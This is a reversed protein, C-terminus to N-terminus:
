RRSPACAAESPASGRASSRSAAIVLRPSCRADFAGADYDGYTSRVVFGAGEVAAILAGPMWLRVDERYRRIENGSQMAIEKVVRGADLRRREVVEWRGVTRHTEPELGDRVLESNFTDLVFVGDPVLVRAVEELVARDDDPEPLYGFSTFMNIVRDFCAARFPLRQMDARVLAAHGGLAARAAGLLPASLDLGVTEAGAAVLPELYRGAGCCLDLVRRGQLGLPVLIGQTARAAEARDRHAYTELYTADFRDAYWPSDSM